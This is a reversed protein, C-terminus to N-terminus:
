SFTDILAQPAMGEKIRRLEYYIVAVGTAGILNFVVSLVLNYTVLGLNPGTRAERALAALGGFLAFGAYSIILVALSYVLVLGFISWRHGRTLDSSRTFAGFVGTKEMVASPVTVVWITVLILGPVILLIFGLGLALGQLIALGFLVPILPVRGAIMGGIDLKRGNLDSIAGTVVSAQFFFSFIISILGGVLGILGAAPAAEPNARIMASAGQVMAGPVAVLAVALILFAAMNRGLVGFTSGVVNAIEFSGKDAITTMGLGGAYTDLKAISRDPQL